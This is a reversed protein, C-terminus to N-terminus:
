AESIRENIKERVFSNFKQIESLYFFISKRPKDGNRLRRTEELVYKYKRADPFLKNFMEIFEDKRAEKINYLSFIIRLLNFVAEQGSDFLIKENFGFELISCYTWQLKDFESVVNRKVEMEGSYEVLKGVDEGVLIRYNQALRRPFPNNSKWDALIVDKSSVFIELRFIQEKEFDPKEISMRGSGAISYYVLNKENTQENCFSILIKKFKKLADFNSEKFIFLIDIDQHSKLSPSYVSSGHIVVSFIDHKLPKLKDSFEGLLVKLKKHM